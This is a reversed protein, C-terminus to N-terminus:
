CSNHLGGAAAWIIASHWVVALGEMQVVVLLLQQTPALCQRRSSSSRQQQLSRSPPLLGARQWQQQLASWLADLWAPQLLPLWRQQEAPTTVAEHVQHSLYVTWQGDHRLAHM